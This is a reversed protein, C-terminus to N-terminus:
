RQALPQPCSARLASPSKETPQSASRSRPPRHVSITSFWWTPATSSPSRWNSNPPMPNIEGGTETPSWKMVVLRLNDPPNFVVNGEQTANYEVSGFIGPTLMHQTSIYTEGTITLTSEITTEQLTSKARWQGTFSNETLGQAAAPAALAVFTAAALALRPNM